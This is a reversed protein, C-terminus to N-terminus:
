ESAQGNVIFAAYTVNTSKVRKLCRIRLHRATSTISEKHICETHTQTSAHIRKRTRTVRYHQFSLGIMCITWQLLYSNVFIAGKGTPTRKQSRRWCRWMRKDHIRMLSEGTGGQCIIRGVLSRRSSTSTLPLVDAWIHWRSKASSM